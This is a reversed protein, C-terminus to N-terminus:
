LRKGLFTSINEVLHPEGMFFFRAVANSHRFSFKLNGKERLFNVKELVPRCLAELNEQSTCPIDFVTCVQPEKKENDNLFDIVLQNRAGEMADKVGQSEFLDKINDETFRWQAGVRQGKLKGDKLYTRITRTSLGTIKAVDNVTYFKPFGM